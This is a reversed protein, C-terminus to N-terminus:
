EYSPYNLLISEEISYLYHRKGRINYESQFRGERNLFLHGHRYLHRWIRKDNCGDWIQKVTEANLLFRYGSGVMIGPFSIQKRNFQEMQEFENYHDVIFSCLKEIRKYMQCVEKVNFDEIHPLWSELLYDGVAKKRRPATTLGMKHLDNVVTDPHEFLYERSCYYNVEKNDINLFKLLRWDADNTFDALHAAVWLPDSIRILEVGHQVNNKERIIYTGENDLHYGAPSVLDQIFLNERKEDKQRKNINM